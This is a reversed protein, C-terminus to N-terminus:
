KAAARVKAILDTAVRLMKDHDGTVTYRGGVAITPVYDLRYNVAMQDAQAMRASVGFSNFAATFKGKDVGQKVVWETIRQEDVLPQRERHIAEFLKSDLRSLDGTAELAYFARALNAWEPRGFGVAVRRFMVDKPLKATWQDLQPYFEYCHPCAWSFFEIVELQGAKDPPQVTPLTTYDEGRACGAAVLLTCMLFFRRTSM